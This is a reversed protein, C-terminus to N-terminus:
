QKCLSVLESITYTETSDAPLCHCPETISCTQQCAHVLCSGAPMM